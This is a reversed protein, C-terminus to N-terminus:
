SRNVFLVRGHRCNLIHWSWREPSDIGLNFRDTPICDPSDLAPHFRSRTFFGLLPAKRHHARFLHLFHPDTVLHCWRRCVLSIRPISSPVPALHTLVKTLLDHNDLPSVLSAPGGSAVMDGEEDAM